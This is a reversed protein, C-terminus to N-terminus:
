QRRRTRFIRVIVLLIVLASIVSAYLGLNPLRANIGNIIGQREHDYGAPMDLVQNDKAYQQYQVLMAARLEPMAKSLDKTEGPDKAINYLHWQGDAIKGNIKVLKYDGRFLAANGGLEYGVADDPGYVTEAEGKIHPLLSRGIILKKADSAIETGAIEIITPTIDTVFSFSTSITKQKLQLPKGAVILPVRMGGEGAYFKYFALPSAAASAFSPGITNMSGKLGLTEYDNRYGLFKVLARGYLNRSNNHGTAESGNDSTFIFVTNDFEGITKLHAVLRGIHFDMADVMGAYVAMRKAQYRKQEETQADWDGMSSMQVMNSNMPVIGLAKLKAQRAERLAQWGDHYADAYKDTFEQPAQVPIHVAQFPIYAFFPKADAINSDIFEIAKDVLFESSYFKDPLSAEKGDAFWEARDYIPLYPKDEWNDAGTAGLAFSREFGRQSPLQEPTNGLHWKGAMYTHYGASQLAEAITLLKTDLTGQYHPHRKQEPPITEPINPVGNRHSDVGTLLMARSPACNAATHYNTFQMGMEALASITPTQIESGYPATDSFGLDDALILVINPPTTAATSNLEDIQAARANAIGISFSLGLWALALKNTPWRAPNM